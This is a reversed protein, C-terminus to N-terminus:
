SSPTGSSGADIIRAAVTKVQNSTIAFGIGSAQTNGLDPDLAALTPIGIVHGNLDVLAGGSNGPNIAASTQIASTLTVGNGESVTRDLSSVIGETVTAHLGLPNGIALAIDGVSLQSSDSFTAPPPTAGTMHVVALDNSADTGVLTAAVQKGRNLTVSFTTAGAVVHANTVVDGHTDFVVGSGLAQPTEILVVSPSVNDVVSVYKSQLTQAVGTTSTGASGCGAVAAVGALLTVAIAVCGRRSPAIKRM